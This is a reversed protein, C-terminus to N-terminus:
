IFLLCVFLCFGDWRVSENALSALVSPLKDTDCLQAQHIELEGGEEAETITCLFRMTKGKGGDISALMRFSKPPDQEEEEEEEFEESEMPTIDLDLRVNKRTLSVLSSGTPAELKWEGGLEQALEELRAKDAEVNKREYELENLVVTGLDAPKAQKTAPVGGGAFGRVPTGIPASSLVSASGYLATLPRARSLLRQM